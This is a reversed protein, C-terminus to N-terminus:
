GRVLDGEAEGDDEEELEDCSVCGSWYGLDTVGDPTIATIPCRIGSPLNCATCWIGVVPNADNIYITLSWTDM